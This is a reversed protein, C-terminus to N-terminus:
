CDEEDDIWDGEEDVACVFEVETQGRRRVGFGCSLAFTASSGGGGLVSDGVSGGPPFPIKGGSGNM